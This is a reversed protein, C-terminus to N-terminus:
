MERKGTSGVLLVREEGTEQLGELGEGEASKWRGWGMGELLM